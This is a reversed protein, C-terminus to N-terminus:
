RSGGRFQQAQRHLHDILACVAPRRERGAPTVAFVRRPVADDPHLRLLVIDAPRARLALAPV